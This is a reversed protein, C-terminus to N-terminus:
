ALFDACKSFKVNNSKAWAVFDDGYKEFGPVDSTGDTLIVMKQMVKPDQFNNVTDRFTNAFCHSRAEGGWAVIDAAEITEVLRRNLQTSPDEPDPVEAMVASFHETYPNSGKTVVDTTAFRKREWGHLAEAIVPNLNHGEDGILCHNPWITHPYRGNKTLAAIYEVTRKMMGLVKTRARTKVGTQYNLFFLDRDTGPVIGTFAPPPNGSEDVWWLPHSIDVLHHSDMTVHVDDIRPSLRDIMQALRIVNQDAGKVFLTGNPDTFDNQDDILM